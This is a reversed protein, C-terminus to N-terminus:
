RILLNPDLDSPYSYIDWPEVEPASVKATNVGSTGYLGVRAAAVASVNDSESHSRYFDYLHEQGLLTLADLDDLLVNLTYLHENPSLGMAHLKAGITEQEFAAEVDCFSETYKTAIAHPTLMAYHMMQAKIFENYNTPNNKRFLAMVKALVDRTDDHNIPLSGGVGITISLLKSWLEDKLFLNVLHEQSIESASWPTNWSLLGLLSIHILLSKWVPTDTETHIAKGSWQEMIAHELKVSLTHAAKILLAFKSVTATGAAIGGGIKSLISGAAIVDYAAMGFASSYAGTLILPMFFVGYRIYSNDESLKGQKLLTLNVHSKEETSLLAYLRNLIHNKILQGAEKQAKLEYPLLNGITARAVLSSGGILQFIDLIIRLLYHFQKTTDEALGLNAFFTGVNFVLLLGAVLSLERPSLKYKDDVDTRQINEKIAKMMEFVDPMKDLSKFTIGFNVIGSAVLSWWVLFKQYTKENGFLKKAFEGSFIVFPFSGGAALVAWLMLLAYNTNGTENITDHMDAFVLKYQQKLEKDPENYMTTTTDSTQILPTSATKLETAQSTNTSCGEEVLNATVNQLQSIVHAANSYGTSDRNTNTEAKLYYTARKEELNSTFTNWDNTVYFRYISPDIEDTESPDNIIEVSPESISERIEDFFSQPPTTEADETRSLASTAVTLNQNLQLIIKVSLM